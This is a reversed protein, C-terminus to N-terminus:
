RTSTIKTGSGSKWPLPKSGIGSGVSDSGATGRGITDDDAGAVVVEAAGTLEAGGLVVAPAGLVAGLVLVATGLMPVDGDLELGGGLEEEPQGSPLLM